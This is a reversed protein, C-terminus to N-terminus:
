RQENLAGREEEEERKTPTARLEAHFPSLYLLPFFFWLSPFLFYLLM